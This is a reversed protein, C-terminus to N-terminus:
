RARFNLFDIVGEWFPSQREARAADRLQGIAKDKECGSLSRLCDGIEQEVKLLGVDAAGPQTALTRLAQITLQTRDM